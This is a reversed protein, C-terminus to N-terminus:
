PPEEDAVVAIGEMEILAEPHFFGSVEFLAIAPYYGGFAARFLRGLAESHARYHERNRVFINLKVIDPLTGGAAAMVTRLNALVQDFQALLDGAGVLCGGADSADQGALFVLRGGRTSIAHSFGRPPALGPPNLIRREM